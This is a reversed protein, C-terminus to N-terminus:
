GETLQWGCVDGGADFEVIAGRLTGLMYNSGPNICLTSGVREGAACEHIHGHLGVAPAHREISSRVASSGVPGVEVGGAAGARPKLEADLLPAIDLNTGRPPCHLNFVARGPDTLRSALREIRAELEDEDVERPSAWPTHNSFGVSVLEGGTPLPWVDAEAYRLAKAGALTEAFEPYDDNGLMAFAPFDEPLREEALAMWQELSERMVARFRQELAVPDAELAAKEEATLVDTYYGTMHISDRLRQLEEPSSARRTEGGVEASWTGDGHEVIPVLAKGTVDGGLVLVDARYAARANLWKRFCRESGHIDTAFFLRTRPSARRRRFV